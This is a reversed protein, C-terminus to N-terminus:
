EFIGVAGIIDRPVPSSVRVRYVRNKFRGMRKFKIPQRYLLPKVRRYSWSVGFDDSYELQVYADSGTPGVTPYMIVEFLSQRKWNQNQHVYPSTRTGILPAGAEAFATWDVLYVNGNQLDGAYNSGSSQVVQSARWFNLGNSQRRHWQDSNLDYGWTHGDLFTLYYVKFGEDLWVTAFAASKNCNKIAQEIAYTSIRTPVYGTSAYIIGDNGLWLLTNDILQITNGGACGIQMAVGQVPQFLIDTAGTDTFPQVTRTGFAWVEDHNVKVGVLPDPAISAEYVNTPDYTTADALNSNFWYQGLPEVYIMYQDIFDISIGGPFNPDTITSFAQTATNWIYGNPGNIVVVEYGGAVQNHQIQVRGVGPITGLATYTGTSPFVQYMTQGNVFFLNGEADHAGRCPYTPLTLETTLGPCARMKQDSRQHSDQAPQVMYNVSDQLDYALDNDTFAGGCFPIPVKTGDAM